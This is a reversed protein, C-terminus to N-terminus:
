KAAFLFFLDIDIKMKSLACVHIFIIKLDFPHGNHLKMKPNRYNYLGRIASYIIYTIVYLSAQTKLCIIIMNTLFNAHM